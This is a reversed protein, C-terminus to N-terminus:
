LPDSQYRDVIPVLEAASSLNTADVSLDPNWYQYHRHAGTLFFRKCCNGKEIDEESYKSLLYPALPVYIIACIPFFSVTWCYVSFSETGIIAFTSLFIAVSVTMPVTMIWQPQYM